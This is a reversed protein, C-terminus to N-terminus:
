IVDIVKELIYHTIGVIITIGLLIIFRTITPKKSNKLKKKLYLIDILIFLIGIIVGVILGVHILGYNYFFSFMEQLFGSPNKINSGLLIRLNGIGLMLSLAIWIIYALIQKLIKM